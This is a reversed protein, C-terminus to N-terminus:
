PKVLFGGRRLAKRARVRAVDDVKPAEIPPDPLVAVARRKRAHREAVLDLVAALHQEVRERKLRERTLAIYFAVVAEPDREKFTM